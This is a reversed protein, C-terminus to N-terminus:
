HFSGSLDIIQPVGIEPVGGWICIYIYICACIFICIHGHHEWQVVMTTPGILGIVTTFGGAQFAALGCGAPKLAIIGRIMPTGLM